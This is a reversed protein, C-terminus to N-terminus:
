HIIYVFGLVLVITTHFTDRYSAPVSHRTNFKLHFISSFTIYSFKNFRKLYSGLIDLHSNQITLLLLLIFYFDKQICGGVSRNKHFNLHYSFWYDIASLIQFKLEIREHFTQTGRTYTPCGQHLYKCIYETEKLILPTQSIWEVRYTCLLFNNQLRSFLIHSLFFPFLFERDIERSGVRMLSLSFPVWGNM